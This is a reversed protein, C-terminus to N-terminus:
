FITKRGAPVCLAHCACDENDGPGPPSNAGSWGLRPRRTWVPLGAPAAQGVRTGSGASPTPMPRISRVGFAGSSFPKVAVIVESDSAYEGRAVAQRVVEAIAPKLIVHLEATDTM